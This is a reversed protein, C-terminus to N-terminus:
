QVLVGQLVNPNELVKRIEKQQEEKARHQFLLVDTQKDKMAVKLFYEIIERRPRGGALDNIWTMRGVKDVEGKLINIYCWDVFEEDPLNPIKVANPDMKPLEDPNLTKNWTINRDKMPLNDIVYMWKKAVEDYNCNDKISEVADKSLQALKNKDSLVTLKKSLDKRDFYSRRQMTSAEHFEYEIDIPIGGMHMTYPTGDAKKHMINGDVDRPKQAKELLAANASILIPVGCAKAESAPMEDAGAISVQVYVDALNFIEAMEERSFGVNTNPTRMAMHNCSPCKIYARGDTFQANLLWIAYGIQKRGCKDCMYSHLIHKHLGEYYYPLYKQTSLRAIHTWYEQGADFGTSHILLVSKQAIPDDKNDKKYKAFSDIMECFLKRQQNRMCTLIIPLEPNISWKKRIEKKDMPKFVDMDVGPRAPMPLLKKAGAARIKPSQEKMVNIAFDSYGLLYDCTEYMSLWEHRQPTSDICPMYVWRFFPRLASDSHVTSMWPDMWSCVYDPQFDLLVDNYINAGFQGLPARKGWQNYAANYRRQGEQDNEEPVAAYVKWPVNKTRPDSQKIYTGLEAIEYKGSDYMKRILKHGYNSFGTALESFENVFLIKKKYQESM